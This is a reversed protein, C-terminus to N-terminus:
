LVTLVLPWLQFIEAFGPNIALLGIHHEHQVPILIVFKVRFVSADCLDM